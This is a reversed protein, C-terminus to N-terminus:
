ADVEGPTSVHVPEAALTHLRAIVALLVLYLVLLVGYGIHWVTDPLDTRAERQLLHRESGFSRVVGSRAPVETVPIVADAPLYVPAAVLHNDPKHLRILTKWDGGVRAPRSSRWIGEGLPEMPARVSGGGQWSLAYFWVADDAAAPDDLRVTIVAADPGVPDLTIEGRLNGDATRPVSVGLTGFVLVAGATLAAYRFRRTQTRAPPGPDAIRDLRDLQWGALLGAGVGALLGYGLYGPLQSTPWPLPLFVQSWAWEAVTGLTGVLVGSLIGFRHRRTVGVRAALLEVLVAQAVFLSFHPASRGLGTSVGILLIGRIMLFTAVAVLAGGPGFVARMWVLAWVGAVATIVVHALMPFQPVGLEYEMVFVSIGVLWGSASRIELVRVARGRAGVQRAEAALVAGGVTALVAGGIMLVHTPGWETVDQGYIRHWVDDLPFGLLAFGGAVAIITAGLPVSWHHGGVRLTLTRRPLPEAALACGALGSAFVGLLGFLILYHAPTALPGQDRGLDMHYPVDWYVGLGASLLSGSLAMSPLGAWRPLGTFGSVRDALRGLVTSRGTRERAVMVLVPALFGVTILATLVVQLLPAGGAGAEHAQVM